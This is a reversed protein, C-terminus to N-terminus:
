SDVYEAKIPTATHGTFLQWIIECSFNFIKVGKVFNGLFVPSKALNITALPKLLQGFDFIDSLRTM